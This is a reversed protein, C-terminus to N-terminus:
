HIGLLYRRVFAAQASVNTLATLVRLWGYSSADIYNLSNLFVFVCDDHAPFQIYHVSSNTCTQLCTEKHESTPSKSM